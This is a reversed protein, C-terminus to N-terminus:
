YFLVKLSLHQLLLTQFNRSYSIDGEVINDASFIQRAHDKNACVFDLPLIVDVGKEAATSLFKLADSVLNREVFSSPCYYGL